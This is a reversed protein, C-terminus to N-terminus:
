LEGLELYDDGISKEASRGGANLRFRDAAGSDIFAKYDILEKHSNKLGELGCYIIKRHGSGPASESACWGDDSYKVGRGIDAFSVTKWLGDGTEIALATIAEKLEEVTEPSKIEM